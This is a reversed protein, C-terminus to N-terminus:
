SIGIVGDGLKCIWTVNMYMQLSFKLQTIFYWDLVDKMCLFIEQYLIVVCIIGKLDIKNKYLLIIYFNPM